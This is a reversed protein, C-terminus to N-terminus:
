SSIKTSGHESREKIEIGESIDFSMDKENEFEKLIKSFLLKRAETGNISSITITKYTTVLFRYKAMSVLWALRVRVSYRRAGFSM